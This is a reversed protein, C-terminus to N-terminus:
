IEERDFIDVTIKYKASVGKNYIKALEQIMKNVKLDLFDAKNIYDCIGRNKELIAEFKNNNFDPNTYLFLLSRQLYRNSLTRTKLYPTLNVINDLINRVERESRVMKFSGENFGETISRTFANYGGCITRFENHGFKIGTKKYESLLKRYLTYEDKNTGCAVYHKLYDNTNWSKHTNNLTPIDEETIKESVKYIIPKSLSVWSEYRHQGELINFNTDVIIELDLDKNSMKRKLTELHKKNVDRNSDCKHFKSYDMTKYVIGVVEDRNTKYFTTLKSDSSIRLEKRM